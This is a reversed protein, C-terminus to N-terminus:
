ISETAFQLFYLVDWLSDDSRPSECKIDERRWSAGNVATLVAEFEPSPETAWFLALGRGSLWPRLRELGTADYLRENAPLSLWSPGNDIDFLLLDFPTEPPTALVEVLDGARRCVRPDDLCAGNIFGLYDHNWDFLVDFLEVVVVEAPCNSALLAKLTLGLGLGGVLVRPAEIGGEAVAALGQRALAIESAHSDSDMLFSGDLILAASEPSGDEAQRIQLALEGWPTEQRYTRTERM